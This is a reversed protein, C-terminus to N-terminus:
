VTSYMVRVKLKLLRTGLIRLRPVYEHMFINEKWEKSTLIELEEVTAFSHSADLPLSSLEAACLNTVKQLRLGASWLGVAPASCIHLWEIRSLTLAVAQAVAVDARFRSCRIRHLDPLSIDSTAAPFIPGTCTRGTLQRLAILGAVRRRLVLGLGLTQGPAASLHPSACYSCGVWRRVGYDPQTIHKVM